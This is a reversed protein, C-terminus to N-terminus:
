ILDLAAVHKPQMFCSKCLTLVFHRGYINYDYTHSCSYLKIKVDESVNLRIIAAKNLRFM